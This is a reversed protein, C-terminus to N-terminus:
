RPAQRSPAGAPFQAACRQHPAHATERPDEIGTFGGCQELGQAGPTVAGDDFRHQETPEPAVLGEPKSEFVDAEALAPDEDGVALTAMLAEHRHRGREEGRQGGVQLALPGDVGRRVPEEHDQFTGPPAHNSRTSAPRDAGRTPNAPPRTGLPSRPRRPRDPARPGGILARASDAYG